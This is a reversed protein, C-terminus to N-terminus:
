CRGPKSSRISWIIPKWSRRSIIILPRTSAPCTNTPSAGCPIAEKYSMVSSTSKAPLRAEDEQAASVEVAFASDQDPTVPLLLIIFVVAVLFMGTLFRKMVDGGFDFM